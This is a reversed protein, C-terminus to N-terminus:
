SGTPTARPRSLVRQRAMWMLVEEYQPQQLGRKKGRRPKGHEDIYKLKQPWYSKLCYSLWGALDYVESCEVPHQINETTVFGFWTEAAYGPLVSGVTPVGVAQPSATGGPSIGSPAIAPGHGTPRPTGLPNPRHSMPVM